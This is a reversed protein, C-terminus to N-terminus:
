ENKFIEIPNRLFVSHKADFNMKHFLRFVEFHTLGVMEVYTEIEAYQTVSIEKSAIKQSQSNLEQLDQMTKESVNLWVLNKLNMNLYCKVIVYAQWYSAPRSPFILLHLVTRQLSQRYAELAPFFFENKNYEPGWKPDNKKKTAVVERQKFNHLMFYVQHVLLQLGPTLLEPKITCMFNPVSSKTKNSRKKNSRRPKVTNPNNKINKVVAVKSKKSARYQSVM